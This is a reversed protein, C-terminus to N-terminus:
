LKRTNKLCKFASILALFKLNEHKYLNKKLYNFNHLLKLIVSSISIYINETIIM